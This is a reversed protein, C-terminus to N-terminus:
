VDHWGKREPVVLRMDVLQLPEVIKRFEKNVPLFDLILINFEDRWWPVKLASSLWRLAGDLLRDLFGVHENLDLLQPLGV